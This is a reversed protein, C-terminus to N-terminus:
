FRKKFRTMDQIRFRDNTAGGDFSRTRKSDRDKRKVRAEEITKAPVMLSSININDHLMASHCKEQLDDLVGTVFGSMEDRPDSVLYLAYKALQNFKLSYDHVSM